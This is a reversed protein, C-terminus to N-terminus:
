LLLYDNRSNKRETCLVDQANDQTYDSHQQQQYDDCKCDHADNSLSDSNEKTNKVNENKKQLLHIITAITGLLQRGLDPM